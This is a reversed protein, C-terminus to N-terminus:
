YNRFNRATPYNIHWHSTKTTNMPRQLKRNAARTHGSHTHRDTGTHVPNTKPAHEGTRDTARAPQAASKTTSSQPEAPLYKSNQPKATKRHNTAGTCVPKPISQSRNRSTIEPETRPSPRNRPQHAPPLDGYHLHIRPTGRTQPPGHNVAWQQGDGNPVPESEMRHEEIRHLADPRRRLGTRRRATRECDRGPCDARTSRRSQGPFHHRWAFDVQCFASPPAPRPRGSQPDAPNLRVPAAAKGAAQGLRM